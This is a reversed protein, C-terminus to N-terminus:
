PAAPANAAVIELYEKTTKTINDRIRDLKDRNKVILEEENTWELDYLTKSLGSTDRCTADAVAATLENESATPTKHAGLLGWQAAVASPPMVDWPNDPVSYSVKSSLCARWKALATQVRSDQIAADSAQVQLSSVYNYDDADKVLDVKSDAFKKCAEWDARIESVHSNVFDGYESWAETSAPDPDPAFHYGWQQAIQLNFLRYGVANFDEPQPFSVDRWPVPWAHGKDVLCKGILLQSAYNGLPEAKARFEDVPLRWQALSKVSVAKDGTSVSKASDPATCAVLTVTCAIVLVGLLPARLASRLAARGRDYKTM